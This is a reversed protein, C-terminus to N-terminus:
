PVPPRVLRLGRDGTWAKLVYSKQPTRMALNTILLSGLGDFAPFLPDQYLFGQAANETVAPFRLREKGDPGLVSVQNAGMLVVYLSGSAGFAMASVGFIGYVESDKQDPTVPPPPYLHVLQLASVNPRDLPLHYIATSSGYGEGFYLYAGTPDIADGDMGSAWVGPLVPDVFWPQAVGGGPPVRWIIPASGDTVYLNGKKDFAIGDPMETLSTMSNTPFTAYDSQAGTVPNVRIIRGNM